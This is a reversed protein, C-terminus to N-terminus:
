PNAPPQVQPDDAKLQEDLGTLRQVSANVQAKLDALETASDVADALQQIEHAISQEINDIATKLADAEAVLTSRVREIQASLENTRTNVLDYIAQHESVPFTM